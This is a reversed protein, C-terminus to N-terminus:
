DQSRRKGQSRELPSPEHGHRAGEPAPLALTPKSEIMHTRNDLQGINLTKEPKPLKIAAGGPQPTWPPPIIQPIDGGGGSGGSGGGGGGRRGGGSPGNDGSGDGSKVKQERPAIGSGYICFSDHDEDETTKYCHSCCRRTM